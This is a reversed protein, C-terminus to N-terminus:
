HAKKEALPLPSRLHYFERLSICTEFITLAKPHKKNEEQNRKGQTSYESEPVTLDGVSQVMNQILPSLVESVLKDFQKYTIAYYPIRLISDNTSFLFIDKIPFFTDSPSISVNSM